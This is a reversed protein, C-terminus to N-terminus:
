PKVVELYRFILSLDSTKPRFYLFTFLWWDGPILGLVGTYGTSQWQVVVVM